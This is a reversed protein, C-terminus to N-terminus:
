KEMAYEPGYLSSDFLLALLLTLTKCMSGDPDLLVSSLTELSSSM